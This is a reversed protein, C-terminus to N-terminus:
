WCVLKRFIHVLITTFLNIAFVFKVFIVKVSGFTGLWGFMVMCFPLLFFTHRAHFFSLQTTGRTEGSVQPPPNAGSCEGDRETGDEEEGSRSVESM